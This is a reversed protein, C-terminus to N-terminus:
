LIDQRHILQLDGSPTFYEELIATRIKEALEEYEKVEAEKKL